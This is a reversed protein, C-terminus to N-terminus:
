HPDRGPALALAFYVALAAFALVPLFFLARRM